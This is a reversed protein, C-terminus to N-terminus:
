TLPRTQASDARVARLPDFILPHHAIILDAGCDLAEGVVAETVDLTVLCARVEASASGAQLGIADWPEALEPPALLDLERILDTVTM